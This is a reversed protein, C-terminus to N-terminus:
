PNCFFERITNLSTPYFVLYVGHLPLLIRGVGCATLPVTANVRCCRFPRDAPSGVEPLGGRRSVFRSHLPPRMRGGRWACRPTGEASM